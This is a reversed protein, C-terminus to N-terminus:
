GLSCFHSINRLSSMNEIKLPIPFDKTLWSAICDLESVKKLEKKRSIQLIEEVCLVCLVYCVLCFTDSAQPIVFFFFGLCINCITM